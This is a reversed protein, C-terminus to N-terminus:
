VHARGIEVIGVIGSKSELVAPKIAPEMGIIPISYNKRLYDITFATAANCAIVLMKIDHSILEDVARIVHALVEDKSKDGYPCNIGDGFYYLSENPLGRQLERWVSLGGLGSDFVGIARNDM